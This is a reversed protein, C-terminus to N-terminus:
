AEENHDRWNDAREALAECRAAEADLAPQVAEAVDQAIGAAKTIAEPHNIITVPGYEPRKITLLLRERGNQNSGGTQFVELVDVSRPGTGEAHARVTVGVDWGDLRATIGSPHGLRTTEQRGRPRIAAIFRAM